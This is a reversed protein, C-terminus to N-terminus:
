KEGAFIKLAVSFCLVLFGASLLLWPDERDFAILVSGLMLAVLGSTMAVTFLYHTWFALGYEFADKDGERVGEKLRYQERVSSWWAKLWLVLKKM